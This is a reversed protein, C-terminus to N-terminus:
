LQLYVGAEYQINPKFNAIRKLIKANTTVFYISSCKHEKGYASLVQWFDKYINMFNNPAWGIYILLLKRELITDEILQTIVVGNINGSDQEMSVWVVKIGYLLESIIRNFRAEPSACKPLTENVAQKIVSVVNKDLVETISLERIVGTM